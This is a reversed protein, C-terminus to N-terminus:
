RRKSWVEPKATPPVCLDKGGIWTGRYEMRVGVDVGNESAWFGPLGDVTSRRIQQNIGEAGFESRLDDIFAAVTPMSFRLPKGSM